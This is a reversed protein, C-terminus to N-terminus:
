MNKTCTSSVLAFAMSTPRVRVWPTRLGKSGPTWRGMGHIM